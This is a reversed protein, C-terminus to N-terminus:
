LGNGKHPGRPECSQGEEKTWFHSDEQSPSHWTGLGRVASEVQNRYWAFHNREKELIYLQVQTSSLSPNSVYLADTIVLTKVRAVPLIAFSNSFYQLWSCILFSPSWNLDPSISKSTIAQVVHGHILPWVGQSSLMIRLNIMLFYRGRSMAKAGRPAGVGANEQEPHSLCGDKPWLDLCIVTCKILTVVRPFPLCYAVSWTPPGTM